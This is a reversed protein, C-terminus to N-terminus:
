QTESVTAPAQRPAPRTEIVVIRHLLSAASIFCYARRTQGYPTSKCSKVSPQKIQPYNSQDHCNNTDHKDNCTVVHRDTSYAASSILSVLDWQVFSWYQTFANIHTEFELDAPNKSHPLLTSHADQTKFIEDLFNCRTQFAIARPFM